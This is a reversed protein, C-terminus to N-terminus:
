LEVDVLRHRFQPLLETVQQSYTPAGEETILVATKPPNHASEVFQM